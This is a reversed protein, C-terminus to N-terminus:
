KVCREDGKCAAPLCFPQSPNEVCRTPYCNKFAEKYAHSGPVRWDHEKYYLKGDACKNQYLCAQTARARSDMRYEMEVIELICADNNALPSTGFTANEHDIILCINEEADEPPSVSHSWHIYQTFDSKKKALNGCSGPYDGTITEYIKLTLWGDEDQINNIITMNAIAPLTFLVNAMMILFYFIKNM